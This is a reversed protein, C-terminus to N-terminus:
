GEGKEKLHTQFGSIYSDWGDDHMKRSSEKQFGVHELEIHCSSNDAGDDGQRSFKVDIETIEGDHNWEWTYRVHKNPVVVLFKGENTSTFDNDSEMFLRYHGDNGVIPKVDMSTAPSIITSSSVWANYVQEVTFGHIDYSKKICGGSGPSNNVDDSMTLFYHLRESLTRAWVM